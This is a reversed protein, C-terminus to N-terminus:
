LMVYAKIRAVPSDQSVRMLRCEANQSNHWLAYGFYAGAEAREDSSGFLPERGHNGKFFILIIESDLILPCGSEFRRGEAQSASM